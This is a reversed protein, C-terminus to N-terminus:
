LKINLERALSLALSAGGTERSSNQKLGWDVFDEFIEAASSVVRAGEEALRATGKGLPSSVGASAVCLERNQELAFSATILAGSKEPAEVIVTLPVLGSIIRNRAPFNWKRVETGPPYESLIVGGGSLIRRALDRNSSPYIRDPGSGLVAVTPAPAEINGRHALADIGLALGSVVSVGARGLEKGLRYAQVAAEASPRRTGVVAALPKEPSPLIGRYFLVVPPDYIELLLLPYASETLSVMQIGMRRAAAEDKEAQIKLSDMSWSRLGPPRNLIAEIDKKSLLSFEEEKDFKRCLEAKEAPLLGPICRIMLDLFGREAM